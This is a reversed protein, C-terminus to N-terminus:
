AAKPAPPLSELTIQNAIMKISDIIMKLADWFVKIVKIAKWIMQVAEKASKILKWQGYGPIAANSLAASALDVVTKVIDVVVQAMQLAQKTSDLLHESMKRMGSAQDGLAELWKQIQKRAATAGDGSWTGDIVQQGKALNEKSVDTCAALKNWADAQRAAKETDGTIWKAVEERIDPGGVYSVLECVKDLAFGFSVEPPPGVESSPATLEASGDQHSFSKSEGDDEVRGPDGKDLKTFDNRAADEMDKYTREAAVLAKSTKQLRTHDERLVEHFKPIMQEYPDTILELIRGFDGDAINSQAYDHASGMDSAVNGVEKAWGRLDAREVTYGV